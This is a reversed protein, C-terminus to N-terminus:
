LTYTQSDLRTCIVTWLHVYLQGSTYLSWDLSHINSQGSTDMYSDVLTCIVSWFPVYLQGFTYKLNSQGSPYLSWDLSHINSQGCTYM